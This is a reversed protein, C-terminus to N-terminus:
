SRGSRYNRELLASSDKGAQADVAPNVPNPPIGHGRYPLPSDGINEGHGDVVERSQNYSPKQLLNSKM